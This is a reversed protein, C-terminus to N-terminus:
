PSCSRGLTEFQFTSPSYQIDRGRYSSTRTRDGTSEVPSGCDPSILVLTSRACLAFALMKSCLFVIGLYPLWAARVTVSGGGGRFERGLQKVLM